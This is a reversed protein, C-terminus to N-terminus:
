FLLLSVTGAASARLTVSSATSQTSGDYVIMSATRSLVLYGAPVRSIPNIISTDTNAATFTMEAIVGQFNDAFNLGNNLASTIQELAIAVYRPVDEPKVRDIDTSAQIRM